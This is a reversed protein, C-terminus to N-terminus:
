RQRCVVFLLVVTDLLLEWIALRCWIQPQYHSRWFCQAFWRIYSQSHRVCSRGTSVLHQWYGGRWNKHVFFENLKARYCGGNITRAWKQLFIAWNHRSCFRCWVTVRKPHMPKKICAHLNETGCIRCNQKNVYGGLDFPAEDSFILKKKKKKKALIPM